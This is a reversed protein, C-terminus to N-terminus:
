NPGMISLSSAAVAWICGALQSLDSQEWWSRMGRPCGRGIVRDIQGIVFRWAAQGFAHFFTQTLLSTSHSPRTLSLASLNQHSRRRPDREIPNSPTYTSNPLRKRLRGAGEYVGYTRLGTVGPSVSCVRAWPTFLYM